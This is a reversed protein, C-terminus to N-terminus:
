SKLRLDLILNSSLIEYKCITEHMLQKKKKELDLFQIWFENKTFNMDNQM